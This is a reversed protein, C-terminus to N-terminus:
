KAQTVMPLWTGLGEAATSRVQPSGAEKGGYVLREGLGGGLLQRHHAALTGPPAAVPPEDGVESLDGAADRDTVEGVVARQCGVPARRSGPEGGIAQQDVVLALFLHTTCHGSDAPIRWRVLVTLLTDPLRPCAACPVLCTRPM